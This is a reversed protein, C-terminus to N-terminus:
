ENKAVEIVADCISKKLMLSKLNNSLSVLKGDKQNFDDDIKSYWKLNSIDVKAGKTLQNMLSIQEYIQSRMLESYDTLWKIAEPKRQHEIDLHFFPCGRCDGGNICGKNFLDFTCAGFPDLYHYFEYNEKRYKRGKQIVASQNTEIITGKSNFSRLFRLKTLAYVYSDAYEKLHNYYHQQTNLNKHGGIRAITLPNFGQLRMNIFAYHRTDGPKIREINPNAKYRRIVIEDYFKNIMVNLQTESTWYELQRHKIKGFSSVFKKSFLYDSTDGIKKKLKQVEYILNYIYESIPLTDEIELSGYEKTELKKRPLTIFYKDNIIKLCDSAIGVFESPRLPIINTLRWWLLVPFFGFKENDTSNSEFSNVVEGFFILDSFAILERTKRKPMEFKSLVEIYEEYDEYSLFSLFLINNRAYSYRKRDSDLNDLYEEFWNVKGLSFMDTEKIGVKIDNLVSQVTKAKNQKLLYVVFTKIQQLLEKYKKFYKFDINVKRHTGINKCLWIDDQFSGNIIINDDRLLGFHELVESYDETKYNLVEKSSFVKTESDSDLVKQFTTQNM